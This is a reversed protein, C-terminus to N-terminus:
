YGSGTGGGGFNGEGFQMKDPQNPQQIAQNVIFAELNQFKNKRHPEYTLRYKPTKLARIALISLLVLIAGGITSAWELPLISFYHRYTFISFALALMGVILFKRDHKQLGRVIYFVPIAATFFYFLPTFAIQISNSLDNLMANGERVVYYNGGLYFTALTLIKIIDQCDTYYSSNETKKWFQIFFYSAASVIMIVFPLILKGIPFKTVIIFWLAIWTLYVGIAVLPDAYRILAPLLIILIIFYYAWVPLNINPLLIFFAILSGIMAYLLANDAGSRYLNNKKIFFELFYFSVGGYILSIISFAATSESVLAALFISIFGISASTVINTFIFLGIKVFINSRHFGVPFEKQAADFQEESLLKQEHWNEIISQNGINEVWIENYAKKM